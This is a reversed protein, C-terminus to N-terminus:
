IPRDIGGREFNSDDFRKKKSDSRLSPKHLFAQSPCCNFFESGAFVPPRFRSIHEAQCQESLLPAEIDECEHAVTIAVGVAM